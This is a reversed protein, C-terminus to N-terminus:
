PVVITQQDDSNIGTTELDYDASGSYVQNRFKCNTSDCQDNTGGGMLWVKTSAASNGVGLSFNTRNSTEAPKRYNQGVKYDTLWQLPNSVMMGIESAGPLEEGQAKLTTVVVAAIEGQFEDNNQYRSGVYFKGAVSNGASNSM